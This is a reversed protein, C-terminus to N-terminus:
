TRALYSFKDNRCPQSEGSHQEPTVYMYGVGRVTRIRWENENGLKNRLVCIHKWVDSVDFTEPVSKMLDEKSVIRNANMLLARFLSSRPL